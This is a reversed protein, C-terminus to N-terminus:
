LPFAHAPWFAAGKIGRGCAAAWIRGVLASISSIPSPKILASPKPYLACKHTCTKVFSAVNEGDIDIDPPNRLATHLVARGETDNIIAGDFMADRKAELDCDQACTILGELVDDTIKNKSYDFLLGDLEISYKEFRDSDSKFLDRMHDIIKASMQLDNLM